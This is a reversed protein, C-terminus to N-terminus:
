RRGPCPEQPPITALLRITRYAFVLQLCLSCFGAVVLVQLCYPLSCRSLYCSVSFSCFPLYRLPLHCYCFILLLTLLQLTVSTLLFCVSPYIVTPCCVLVPLIVLPTIRSSYIVCDGCNTKLYLVTVLLPCLLVTMLNITPYLFQCLIYVTFFLIKWLRCKNCM